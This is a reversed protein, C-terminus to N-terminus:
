KTGAVAAFRLATPHAPLRSSYRYGSSWGVALRLEETSPWGDSVLLKMEVVPRTPSAQAFARYQPWSAQGPEQGASLGDEDGPERSFLYM